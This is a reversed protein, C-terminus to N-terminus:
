ARSQILGNSGGGQRLLMSKKFRNTYAVNLFKFALGASGGLHNTYAVNLLFETQNRAHQKNQPYARGWYPGILSQAHGGGHLILCCPTGWM